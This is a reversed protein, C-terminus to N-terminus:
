CKDISPIGYQKLRKEKAGHGTDDLNKLKPFKQCIWRCQSDDMLFGCITSVLRFHIETMYIRRLQEWAYDTITLLQLLEGLDPTISRCDM